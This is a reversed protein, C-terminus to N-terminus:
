GTSCEFIEFGFKCKITEIYLRREVILLIYLLSFLSSALSCLKEELTWDNAQLLLGLVIGVNYGHSILKIM